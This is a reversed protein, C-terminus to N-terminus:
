FFPHVPSRVDPIFELREKEASGWRHELRSALHGALVKVRVLLEFHPRRINVGEDLRGVGCNGSVRPPWGVSEAGKTAQKLETVNGGPDHVRKVGDVAHLSRLISQQSRPM